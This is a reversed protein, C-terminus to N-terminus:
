LNFAINLLLDSFMLDSLRKIHIHAHVNSKFEKCKLATPGIICFLHCTDELPKVSSKHLLVSISSIPSISILGLRSDRATSQRSFGRGERESQSM